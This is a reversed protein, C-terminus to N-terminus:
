GVICVSKNFINKNDINEKKIGLLALSSFREQRIKRDCWGTTTGCNMKLSRVLFFDKSASNMPITFYQKFLDFILPFM